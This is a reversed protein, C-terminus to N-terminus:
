KMDEKAVEAARAVYRRFSGPKLFDGSVLYEIGFIFGHGLGRLFAGAVRFPNIM